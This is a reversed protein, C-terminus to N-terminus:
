FSEAEFKAMNRRLVEVEYRWSDSLAPSVTADKQAAQEIRESFERYGDSNWLPVFEIQVVKKTNRSETSAEAQANDVVPGNKTMRQNREVLSWGSLFVLLVLLVSLSFRMLPSLALSAQTAECDIGVRADGLWDRKPEILAGPNQLYNLEAELANVVERASQFRDEARKELLKNVFGELWAPADSRLERVARPQAHVIKQMAAYPSDAQFPPMGAVLTYVLSGLSFLDSRPDCIEGKVQEPAMYLPTGAIMGSRTMSADDSVRVLGFDAVRVREVGRDLLINAPKIDRHVIGTDHAAELALAIQQTIRLVSVLELPGHQKLRSELTGGPVYEMALYPLGRHEDVAYIPVVHQHAVSAMARAELSFRQRASQISALEPRLVKVAVTRGLAPDVARYVTGMGGRGIIAKAEFTGIRGLSDPFDSPSLIAVDAALLADGAAICLGDTAADSKPLNGFQEFPVEGSRVLLQKVQKELNDGGACVLLQEQCAECVELHLEFADVEAPKLENRLFPLCRDHQCSM